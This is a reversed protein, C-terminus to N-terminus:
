RGLVSQPVVVLLRLRQKQKGVPMQAVAHFAPLLLKPM